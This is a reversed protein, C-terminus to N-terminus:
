SIEVIFTPLKKPLTKQSQVKLMIFGKLVVNNLVKKKCFHHSM